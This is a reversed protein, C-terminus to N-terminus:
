KCDQRRTEYDRTKLQPLKASVTRKDYDGLSCDVGNEVLTRIKEVNGRNLM